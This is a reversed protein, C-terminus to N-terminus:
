MRLDSFIQFVAISCQLVIFVETPPRKSINAFMHWCELIERVRPRFAEFTSPYKWQQIKYIMRINLPAINRGVTWSRDHSPM